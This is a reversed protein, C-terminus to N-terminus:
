DTTLKAVARVVQHLVEKGVAAGRRACERDVDSLSEDAALREQERVVGIADALAVFGEPNVEGM